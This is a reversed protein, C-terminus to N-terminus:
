ASDVVLHWAGDRIFVGWVYSPHRGQLEVAKGLTLVFVLLDLVLVGTWM